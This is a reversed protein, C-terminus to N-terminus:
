GVATAAPAQRVQPMLREEAAQPALSSRLCRRAEMRVVVVVVAATQDGLAVMVPVIPEVMPLMQREEAMETEVTELQEMGAEAERATQMGVEVVLDEPTPLDPAVRERGQAAEVGAEVFDQAEPKQARVEEVQDLVAMKALM